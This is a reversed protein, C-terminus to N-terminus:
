SSRAGASRRVAPLERGDPPTCRSTPRPTASSRRSPAPPAAASGPRTSRRSRAGEGRGVAAAPGRGEGRVAARGEAPRPDLAGLRPLLEGRLREPEGRPRGSPGARGRGRRRHLPAGPRLVLAAVAAEPEEALASSFREVAQPYDGAMFAASGVLYQAEASDGDRVLTEVLRQGEQVKGNACSPWASCTRSRATTPGRPPSRGCCSRSPPPSASSCGATPSSCPRACTTRSGRTCPRCSRPRARCTPRSTTRSLSTTASAATTRRSRSRPRPLGRDGGPLPRAGRAGRRPELGGRGHAAPAPERPVGRGRGRPRRGPAPAVRGPSRPARTRPRLPPPSSRWAWCRWRSSRSSPRACAVSPRRPRALAPTLTVPHASESRDRRLLPDADRRDADLVGNLRATDYGAPAYAVVLARRAELTISTRLSDSSPNGFPGEADVLM